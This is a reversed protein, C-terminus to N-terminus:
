IGDAEAEARIRIENAQAEAELTKVLKQGKAQEEAAEKLRLQRTKENLAVKVNENPDIATVPRLKLM